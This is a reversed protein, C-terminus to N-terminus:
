KAKAGIVLLLPKWTGSEGQPLNPSRAPERWRPHHCPRDDGSRSRSGKRGSETGEQPSIIRESLDLGPRVSRHLIEIALADDYRTSRSADAARGRQPKRLGSRPYVEYCIS